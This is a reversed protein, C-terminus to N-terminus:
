FGFGVCLLGCGLCGFGALDSSFWVWLQLDLGGVECRLDGFGVLVFLLLGFSAM